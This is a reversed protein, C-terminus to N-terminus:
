ESKVKKNQSIKKLEEFAVDKQENNRLTFSIYPQKEANAKVSLNIYGIKQSRFNKRIDDLISDFHEKLYHEFDVKLLLHSGGQLDLGLKITNESLFSKGARESESFFNPLSQYIAWLCVGIVLLIKWKPFNIM